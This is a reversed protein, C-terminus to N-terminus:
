ISSLLQYQKPNGGISNYRYESNVLMNHLDDTLPLFKTARDMHKRTDYASWVDSQGISMFKMRPFPVMNVAQKLYSMRPECDFRNFCNVNSLM